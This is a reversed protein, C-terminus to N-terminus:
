RRGPKPEALVVPRATEEEIVTVRIGGVLDSILNFLVAVLVTLGTGTIVLILGALASARFIVDGEFSFTEFLGLDKFLSEIDDITGAGAAISWLIVGAVMVILFLCFYFILSLKLVSWPDVHRVVRRVKRARMRGMVKREKRTLPRVTREPEAKPSARWRSPKEPPGPDELLMAPGDVASVPGVTATLAAATSMAPPATIRVGDHAPAASGNDSDTATTDEDSSAATLGTQEASM